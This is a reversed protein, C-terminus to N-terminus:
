SKEAMAVKSVRWQLIPMYTKWGTTKGLPRSKSIAIRILEGGFEQHLDILLAESEITVANAVLRGGLNLAKWCMTFLGATSIGGGIFIADPTELNPLVAPAYGKVIKLNPTGLAIANKAILQLRDENHEIAIARLRRDRRMWEISISGCGAGIDWLLQGPAPALSTIVISRIEQKTIKGDHLFISDDLCSLRPRAACLPDAICEVAITHLPDFNGKPWNAAEGRICREAQNGMREFVTINSKSYSRKVLKEAVVAPTSGGHALILLKAQPQIAVELLADNRGHLTIFDIDDFSWGTRASALSFASPAPIVNIEEIPIQAEILSGVGYCFPDGTALICVKRDRYKILNKVSNQIPKEWAIFSQDGQNIMALHRDGGIIVDSNDILIRAAPSLSEYGEEGIGIISLWQSM